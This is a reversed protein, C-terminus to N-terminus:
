LNPRCRVGRGSVSHVTGTGDRQGDAASGSLFLEWSTKPRCLEGSVSVPNEGIEPPDLM